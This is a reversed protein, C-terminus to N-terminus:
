NEQMKEPVLCLISCQSDSLFDFRPSSKSFRVFRLSVRFKTVLPPSAKEVGSKLNQIGYM